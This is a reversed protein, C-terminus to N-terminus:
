REGATRRMSVDEERALVGLAPEVERVDLGGSGLEAMDVLVLVLAEEVAGVKECERVM